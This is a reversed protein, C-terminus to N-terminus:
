FSVFPEKLAISSSTLHLALNTKLSSFSVALQASAHKDKILSTCSILICFFDSFRAVLAAIVGLFGESGCMCPRIGSIEHQFVTDMASEM